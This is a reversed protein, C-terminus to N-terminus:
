KKAVLHPALEGTACLSVQGDADPSRMWRFSVIRLKSLCDRLRRKDAFARWDTMNSELRRGVLALRSNPLEPWAPWVHMSGWEALCRGCSLALTLGTRQLPRM